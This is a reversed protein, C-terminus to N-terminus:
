RVERKCNAVVGWSTGYDRWVPFIVSMALIETILPPMKSWSEAGLRNVRALVDM